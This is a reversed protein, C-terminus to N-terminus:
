VKQNGTAEPHAPNKSMQQFPDTYQPTLTTDSLARASSPIMGARPSDNTASTVSNASNMKHAGKQMVKHNSLEFITYQQRMKTMNLKAKHM